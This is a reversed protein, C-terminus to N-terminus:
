KKVPNRKLFYIHCDVHPHPICEYEIFGLDRYAIRVKPSMTETYIPLGTEDARRFMEKRILRNAIEGSSDSTLLFGYWGVTPRIRNMIKRLRVVRIANRWGTVKCALIIKKSFLSFSQKVDKLRYFFMVGKENDSIYAGKYENAEVFCYQTLARLAELRNKSKNLLWTISQSKHLCQSLIDLARNKQGLTQIRVM